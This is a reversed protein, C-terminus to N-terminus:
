GTETAPSVLAQEEDAPQFMAAGVCGPGVHTGVVPGIESEILEVVSFSDHLLSRLRAAIVPAAAHAIGAIVPRGVDVRQKLLEILRPYASDARRVRDVPVIEGEELRLVPKLGLMGGVWAQAKGLRGGRALYAPTDAVFILHVRPRMAELHARIEQASLGHEAMRAAMLVLLALGVSVQMSDVVELNVAGDGRLKSLEERGEKAAARASVITHSVRESGHVSVVDSREVVTRYAALFEAQSPPATVPRADPRGQLLRYFTEPAIDITDKYVETGFTVLLPVVHIRHRTALEPPLDATSDTVIRVAAKPPELKLVGTQILHAVEALVAGDAFESRDLVDWVTGSRRANEAVERRTPSLGPPLGEGSALRARSSLAPLGSRAEEFRHMDEMALAMLSLLDKFLERPVSSQGIVLRFHGAATRALRCFAKLGRQSNARAAIVEGLELFVEGCGMRVDGTVAAAHLMPLLELLPLTQLDGVLSELLPDSRLRLERGLLVTRVKLLIAAPTLGESEVLLVGTPVEVGARTKVLLVTTPSVGGAALEGRQGGVPYAVDVLGEAAVIVEPELGGGFRKGEDANAAAIVEYGHGALGRVLEKRRTEEGDVVLVRLGAM